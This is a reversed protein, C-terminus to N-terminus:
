FYQGYIHGCLHARGVSVGEPHLLLVAHPIDSGASHHNRCACATCHTRRTCRTCRTCRACRARYTGSYLGAAPTRVGSSHSVASRTFAGCTPMAHVLAGAMNCLGLTVMEQTADM